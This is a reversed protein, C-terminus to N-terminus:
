SRLKVETERDEEFMLLLSKSVGFQHSTTLKELALVVVKVFLLFMENLKDALTKGFNICHLDVIVFRELKM